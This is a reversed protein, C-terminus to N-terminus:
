GGGGARERAFRLKSPIAEVAGSGIEGQNLRQQALGWSVAEVLADDSKSLRRALEEAMGRYAKMGVEPHEQILALFKAATFEMVDTKELAVVSATRTQVGLFGIEGILDCTQLTVLRKYRAGGMNKRVEVSGSLILIFSDGPEGERMLFSGKEYVKIVGIGEVLELDPPDLYNLFM